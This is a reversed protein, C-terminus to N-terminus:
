VSKIEGLMILNKIFRIETIKYDDLLICKKLYDIEDKNFDTHQSLSEILLNIGLIKDGYDKGDITLSFLDNDYYRIFGINCILLGITIKVYDIDNYYKKISDFIMLLTYTYSFLGGTILFNKKNIPILEIKNKEYKYISRILHIYKKPLSNIRSLINKKIISFNKPKKGIIYSTNFGYEEYFNNKVSNIFEINIENTKNFEVVTGKVAVIENEIIRKTFHDVHNWVKARVIGSFDELILDIYLDGLRTKKTYKKKCLYYGYVNEGLKLEDINLFKM